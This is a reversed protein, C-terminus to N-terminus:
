VIDLNAKAVAKMPISVKGSTADEVELTEDYFDTLIGSFNKQSSEPHLPAYLSVKVNQGVAKKYHAETKLPRNIGPSSVELVYSDGIVNTADLMDGVFNSVNGCDDLTVGTQAQGEPATKDIFIRLVWKGAEKRYQTEVLEFHKQELVPKLVQEIEQIKDM